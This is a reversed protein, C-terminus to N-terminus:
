YDIIGQWLYSCMIADMTNYQITADYITLSLQRQHQVDALCRNQDPHLIGFDARQMFYSAQQTHSHM